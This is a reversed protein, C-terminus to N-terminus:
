IHPLPPTLGIQKVLQAESAAKAEVLHVVMATLMQEWSIGPVHRQADLLARVIPDIRGAREIDDKTYTQM